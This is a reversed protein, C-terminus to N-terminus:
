IQLRVHQLQLTAPTSFSALAYPSKGGSWGAQDGNAFAVLFHSL